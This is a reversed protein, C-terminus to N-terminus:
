AKRKEERRKQEIRKKEKRRQEVITKKASAEEKPVAMEELVTTTVIPVQNDSVIQDNKSWNDNTIESTQIIEVNKNLFYEGIFFFTVGLILIVFISLAVLSRYQGRLLNPLKQGRRTQAQTKIAMKDEPNSYANLLRFSKIVTATPIQLFQAYAKLYGEAYVQAVIKSYDDEELEVIIKKSLLLNQAVESISIQRAERAAKLMRGPPQQTISVSDSVDNM